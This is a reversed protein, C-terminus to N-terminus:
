EEADCVGWDGDFAMGSAKWTGRYLKGGFRTGADDLTRRCSDRLDGTGRDCISVAAERGPVGMGRALSDREM